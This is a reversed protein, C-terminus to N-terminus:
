PLREAEKLLRQMEERVVREAIDPV